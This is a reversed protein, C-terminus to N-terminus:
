NFQFYLLGLAAITMVVLTLGGLINSRKGNTFEGMIKKNNCIHLIMAILVPATMGYLVATYILAQVPSIGIFNIALAVLLSVIIVLYFGKAEQFKKNLGEEWGFSESIIYSLSGALVPIALFGTGLMGLAFLLYTLQGALPKLALAAQDVTDIQHIGSNYLITGASLMIFYMVFNSFLMGFDIDLRMDSLIKKDIIIKRQLVEEVEMSAQWFFCYPSITTGLIAVVILIYQKDWRFTPLVTKKLIMLWDLHLLFPVIVYCLLTICLWKLVNAIKRYPLYVIMVMMFLTFALSFIGSHVQPVLLNMVAGMGAIDAGINLVIAPFSFFIMLYVVGVPYNRKLTGALGHSTVLGIRACMEQISSVMPFVFWATWLTTLGFAAGAQSYTAIGSPDDDSAGTVLGPGLKKFFGTKGQKEPM